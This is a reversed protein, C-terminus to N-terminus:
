PLGDHNFQAANTENPELCATKFKNKITHILNQIFSFSISQINDYRSIDLPLSEASSSLVNEIRTGVATCHFNNGVVIEPACSKVGAASSGKKGGVLKM